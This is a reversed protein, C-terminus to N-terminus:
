IEGGVLHGYALKTIGAKLFYRKNDFCSLSCKTIESSKVNHNHLRITKMSHMQEISSFLTDRYDDITIDKKVTHKSIGKCKESEYIFCKKVQDKTTERLKKVDVSKKLFVIM